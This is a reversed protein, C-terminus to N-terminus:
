AAIGVMNAEAIGCEIARDPFFKFFPKLGSSNVLDSDLVVIDENKEAADMLAQCCADRMLTPCKEMSDRVTFM